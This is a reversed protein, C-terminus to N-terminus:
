FFKRYKVSGSPKHSSQNRAATKLWILGNCARDNQKKLIMENGAKAPSHIM